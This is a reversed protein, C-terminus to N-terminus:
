DKAVTGQAGGKTMPTALDPGTSRAEEALQEELADEAAENDKSARLLAEPDPTEAPTESSEFGAPPTFTVAEGGPNTTPEVKPRLDMGDTVFPSEVGNFFKVPFIERAEPMAGVM